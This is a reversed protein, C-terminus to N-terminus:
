GLLHAVMAREEQLEKQTIAIKEQLFPDIDLGTVIEADGKGLSLCPFSFFLNEDIGYPNGKSYVGM